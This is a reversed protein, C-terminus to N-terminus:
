CCSVVVAPEIWAEPSIFDTNTRPLPQTTVGPVCDGRTKFRHAYTVCSVRTKRGQSYRESKERKMNEKQTHSAPWTTVQDSFMAQQLLSRYLYLVVSSITAAQCIPRWNTMCMFIRCRFQGSICSGDKWM